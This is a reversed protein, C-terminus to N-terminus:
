ETNECTQTLTFVECKRQYHHTNQLSAMVLLILNQSKNYPFTYTFINNHLNQLLKKEKKTGKPGWRPPPPPPVGSKLHCPYDFSKKPNPIKSKPIKKPPFNHCTNKPYSSKLLSKKPCEFCDSFEHYNGGIWAVYNRSYIKIPQFNMMPNKPPYIKTWPNKRPKIKKKNSNKQTKM